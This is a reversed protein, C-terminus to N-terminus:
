WTFASTRVRPQRGKAGCASGVVHVLVVLEERAEVVIVVEAAHRAAVQARAGTLGGGAEDGGGTRAGGAGAGPIKAAEPLARVAPRRFEALLSSLINKPPASLALSRPKQRTQPATVQQDAHLVACHM